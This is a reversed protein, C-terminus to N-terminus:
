ESPEVDELWGADYFAVLLGVDHEYQAKMLDFLFKWERGRFGQKVALQNFIDAVEPPVNIKSMKRKNQQAM